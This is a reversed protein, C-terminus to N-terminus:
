ETRGGKKPRVLAELTQHPTRQDQTLLGLLELRAEIARVTRRHKTAIDEISESRKFEASLAEEEATSWPKGVGSPLQARRAARAAKEEIATLAVLLARNVEIRNIVADSPLEEGTVPDNGHILSQIVHKARDINHSSM